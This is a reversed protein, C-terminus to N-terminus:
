KIRPITIVHTPEAVKSEGVLQISGDGGGAKAIEKADRRLEEAVSGGKLAKMAGGVRVLPLSWRTLKGLPAVARSTAVDAGGLSTVVNPEEARGRVVECGLGLRNNIEFLFNYRRLLPELLQVKLDPRAIALPIGPLGAGTGIDVVRSGEDVVEGLVASNLIHREWIRPVERPGLLGREIGATALFEAYEQALSLRDGFAEIAAAPPEGLEPNQINEDDRNGM